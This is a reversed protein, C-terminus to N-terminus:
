AVMNKLDESYLKGTMYLPVIECCVHPDEPEVTKRGERKYNKGSGQTYPNYQLQTFTDIPTVCVMNLQESCKSWM